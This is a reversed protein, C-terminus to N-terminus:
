LHLIKDYALRMLEATSDTGFKEKITTLYNSVTKATLGLRQAIERSNLGQVLLEFVQFERATLDSVPDCRQGARGKTELSLGLDLYPKGKAVSHVATIMCAPDCQKCLYGLAGTELARHVYISEDHISFVLIKAEPQLHIIRQIFEFGSRGGLNLDVIIVDAQLLQPQELAMEPDGSELTIEFGGASELLLRYGARVVVHDDILVVKIPDPM